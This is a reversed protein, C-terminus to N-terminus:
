KEKTNVLAQQYEEEHQKQLVKRRQRNAESKLLPNSKSDKTPAELGLFILEDHMNKQFKSRAM